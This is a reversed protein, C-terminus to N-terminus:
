FFLKTITAASGIIFCPIIIWILKQMLESRAEPDNKTTLLGFATTVLAIFFSIGSIVQLFPDISTLFADLSFTGNM